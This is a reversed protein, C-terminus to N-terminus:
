YILRPFFSYSKGVTLIKLSKFVSLTSCLGLGTQLQYSSWRTLLIKTFAWTWSPAIFYFEEKKLKKKKKWLGSFPMYIGRSKQHQKWARKHLLVHDCTFGQQNEMEILFPRQGAQHLILKSIGRHDSHHKGKQGCRHTWVVLLQTFGHSQRWPYKLPSVLPNIKTSSVEAVM